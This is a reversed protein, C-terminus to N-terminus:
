MKFKKIDVFESDFIELRLYETFINKKYQDLEGSWMQIGFILYM